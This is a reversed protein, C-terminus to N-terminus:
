PAKLLVKIKQLLIDPEYPKRICDNAGAAFSKEDITDIGYGTVMIIPIHKTAPDGKLIECAKFGNLKPMIVDLLILDPHDKLAIELGQQSDTASIVSYGMSELRLQLITIQDPNDEILLIKKGM